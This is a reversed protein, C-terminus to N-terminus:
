TTGFELENLELKIPNFSKGLEGKYTVRKKASLSTTPCYEVAVKKVDTSVEIWIMATRLEVNGAWPGSVLKSKQAHIFSPLCILILPM